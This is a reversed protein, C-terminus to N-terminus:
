LKKRKTYTKRKKIIKEKTEVEDGTEESDIESVLASKKKRKIIKNCYGCNMTEPPTMDTIYVIERGCVCNYQYNM